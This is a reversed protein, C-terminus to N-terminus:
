RMFHRDIVKTILVDLPKTPDSLYSTLGAAEGAEIDSDRDGIMVSHSLTIDWKKQLELFMGIGPKRCDCSRMDPDLALPHHPCFSIDMIHGGEKTAQICLYRHFEHMQSPTFIGRGIGGQNTVIFVPIQHEQLLRLSKTVGDLWAFDEILHCYGEDKTLTNDRDFFVARM